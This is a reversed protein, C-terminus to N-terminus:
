KSKQVVTFLAFLNKELEGMDNQWGLTAGIARIAADDITNFALV